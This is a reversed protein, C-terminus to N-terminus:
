ADIITQWRYYITFNNPFHQPYLMEWEFLFRSGWVYDMGRLSSCCYFSPWIIALITWVVVFNPSVVVFSCFIRKFFDGLWEFEYSTWGMGYFYDKIENRKIYIYIYIYIFFHYWTLYQTQSNEKTVSAVKSKKTARNATTTLIMRQERERERERERESEWQKM